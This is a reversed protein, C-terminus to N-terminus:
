HAKSMESHRTDYHAPLVASTQQLQADYEGTWLEKFFSKIQDPWAKHDSGFDAELVSVVHPLLRTFAVWQAASKFADPKSKYHEYEFMRTEVAKVMHMQLLHGAAGDRWAPVSEQLLLWCPGRWRTLAILLGLRRWTQDLSRRNSRWVDKERGSAFANSTLIDASLLLNRNVPFPKSALGLKGWQCAITTAMYKYAEPNFGRQFRVRLALESYSKM